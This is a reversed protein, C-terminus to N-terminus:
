VRLGPDTSADAHNSSRLLLACGARNTLLALPPLSSVFTLGAPTGFVLGAAVLGVGWRRLRRHGPPRTDCPAQAYVRPASELHRIRNIAQYILEPM